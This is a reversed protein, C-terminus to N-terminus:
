SKGDLETSVGFSWSSYIGWQLETTLKSVHVCGILQSDDKVLILLTFVM